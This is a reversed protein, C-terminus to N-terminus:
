LSGREVMKSVLYEYGKANAKLDTDYLYNDKIDKAFNKAILAGGGVFIVKLYSLSYGREQLQLEFEEILRTMTKRISIVYESPILTKENLLVRLIEEEPVDSSFEVQLQNQIQKLFKVMGLEITISKSELPRGDNVYVCDSTKSGIDIILYNTDVMNALRPSIASYCQPCCITKSIVVHYLVGEFEFNLEPIRNYYDIVDYKEAGFNTFPLGVALVIEATKMGKSKLETAIAMMTLIRTKEDNLKSDTINLRGEGVKFYQGDYFISNEILSPETKGMCKVGNPFINNVTKVFGYGIDVGIITKGNQEIM